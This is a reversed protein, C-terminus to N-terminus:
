ILLSNILVAIKGAAKIHIDNHRRMKSAHGDILIRSIEDALTQATLEREEIVTSNYHQQLYRANHLQHNNASRAMPILISPKGLHELEAITSAGARSIILDAQKMQKAIQVFFPSINCYSIHTSKYLKETKSLIDQPCQHSIALKRQFNHPLLSISYPIIDSLIASGLSGGLVLIHYTNKTKYKTSMDSRAFDNRIPLGSHHTQKHLNRTEPFSVAVISAFRSLISNTIGAVVNQEHLIIPIRLLIGAIAAPASTHCGFTVIAAPKIKLIHYICLATNKALKLISCVKRMLPKHFGSSKIIIQNQVDSAYKAGNKDTIWTINYMEKLVNHVALAPFIHGGTGGTSIIISKKQKQPSVKLKYSM